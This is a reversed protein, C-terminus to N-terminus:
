LDCPRARVDGRPTCILAVITKGTRRSRVTIQPKKVLLQQHINFSEGLPVRETKMKKIRKAKKIENEISIEALAFRALPLALADAREDRL